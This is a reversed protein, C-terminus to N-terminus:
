KLNGDATCQITIGKTITKLPVGLKYQQMTVDAKATNKNKESSSYTLSWDNDFIDVSLLADTCLAENKSCLFEATLRARWLLAGDSSYYEAYKTGSVTKNGTFFEVLKRFFEMIRAFFGAPSSEEEISFVIIYSGDDFEEKEAKSEESAFAPIVPILLLLCLIVSIAKKM